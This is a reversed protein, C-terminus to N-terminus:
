NGGLVNYGNAKAWAYCKDKRVNMFLPCTNDYVWVGYGQIESSGVNAFPGILVSVM